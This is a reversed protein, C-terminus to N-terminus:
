DHNDKVTQFTKLLWQLLQGRVERVQELIETNTGTFQFPDSFQQHLIIDGPYFTYKRLM